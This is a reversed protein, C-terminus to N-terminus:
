SISVTRARRRRLYIFGGVAAGGVVVILLTAPVEPTAAAVTCTTGNPSGVLNSYDTFPVGQPTIGKLQVRDCIADQNNVDLGIDLQSTSDFTPTNEQTAYNATTSDGGTTVDWACDLLESFFSVTYASGPAPTGGTWSAGLTLTNATNSVVTGMEAGANAAATANVWQNATWSKATDTVSNATYTVPAGGGTDNSPDRTTSLTFTYTTSGSGSTTATLTKTVYPQNNSPNISQPQELVGIGNSANPTDCDKPPPAIVAHATITSSTVLAVVSAAALAGARLRRSGLM